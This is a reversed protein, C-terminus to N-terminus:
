VSLLATQKAKGESHGHPNIWVDALRSKNLGSCLLCKDCSLGKADSLCEMSGDPKVPSAHFVRYNLSKALRYSSETETSVMFFKAYESALPNTKWDHFYGTWGRSVSAIAKVISIPLLSPNGYAGFRVKRGGFIAQYHVPDISPYNGRHYAKFISTPAQFVTVYCGQGSAFPCGFCITKADLGSKVADMPKYNELLFWIQVMNITKDNKTKLTAIVVFPEGNTIGRYLVYGKRKPLKTTM